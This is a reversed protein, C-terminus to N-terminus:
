DQMPRYAENAKMEISQTPRYAMNEGLGLVEEYEPGTRQLPNSSPQGQLSPKSRQSRHRSVCYFLLIGTLAGALVGVVLTVIGTVVANTGAAVGTSLTTQTTLPEEAAITTLSAVTCQNCYQWPSASFYRLQPKYITM